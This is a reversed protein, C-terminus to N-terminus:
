NRRPIRGRMAQDAGCRASLALSRYVAIFGAWVAIIASYRLPPDLGVPRLSRRGDDKM